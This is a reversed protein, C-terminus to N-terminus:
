VVMGGDVGLVQGTMYDSLDSALFFAVKAVDLPTGFRKMRISEKSRQLIDEPYHKLLDTEIFGPAIANVRINLGGLEKGLSKTFGIVAAKSASYISQGPSGQVALISSMNIISGKRQRIMQKVAFQANYISGYVNTRFTAEIDENAVMGIVADKMIGANNVLIDIPIKQKQLDQHFKKVEEYNGVDCTYHHVTVSYTKELRTALEQLLASNSKTTLILNCGHQAFLEAIASGIGRSAGTILASKGSLM